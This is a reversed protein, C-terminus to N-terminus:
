FSKRFFSRVANRVKTFFDPNAQRRKWESLWFPELRYRPGPWDPPAKYRTPIGIMTALTTIVAWVPAFIPQILYSVSGTLLSSAILLGNVM